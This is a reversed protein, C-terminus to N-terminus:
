GHDKVTQQRGDILGDRNGGTLKPPPRPPGGVVEVEKWLSKVLMAGTEGGDGTLRRSAVLNLADIHTQSALALKPHDHRIRDLLACLSEGISSVLDYGFTRGQGKLEHAIRFLRDTRSCIDGNGSALQAQAETLEAIGSNLERAFEDHLADVVVKAKALMEQPTMGSGTSVKPMLTNPPEFMEFWYKERAANKHPKTAGPTGDMNAM